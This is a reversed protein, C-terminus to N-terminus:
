ASSRRAAVVTADLDTEDHFTVHYRDHAASDLALTARRV